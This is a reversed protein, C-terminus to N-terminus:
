SHSEITIVDYKEQSLLLHNRGDNIVIETRPSELISQADNNLLTSSTQTPNYQGNLDSRNGWSKRLEYNEGIDELGSRVLLSWNKAIKWDVQVKGFFNNRTFRHINEYTLFWPNNQAVGSSAPDKMIAGNQNIGEFGTLWYNTMDSLPQLNDPFNFLLDNLVSNSGTSNAKNPSFTTIYNANVSVKVDKALKYESNLAISTQKTQTNPM